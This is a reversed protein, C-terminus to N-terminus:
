SHMALKLQEKGVLLNYMASDNQSVPKAKSFFFVMAVVFCNSINRHSQNTSTKKQEKYKM